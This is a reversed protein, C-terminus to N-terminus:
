PSFRLKKIKYLRANLFVSHIPSHSCLYHNQHSTRRAVKKLYNEEGKLIKFKIYKQYTVTM